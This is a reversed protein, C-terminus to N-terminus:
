QFILLRGCHSSITETGTYIYRSYPSTSFSGCCLQFITSLSRFLLWTFISIRVYLKRTKYFIEQKLRINQDQKEMDNEVLYLISILQLIVNSSKRMCVFHLYPYLLIIKRKIGFICLSVKKVIYFDDATCVQM